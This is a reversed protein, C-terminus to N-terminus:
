HSNWYVNNQMDEYKFFFVIKDKDLKVYYSHM